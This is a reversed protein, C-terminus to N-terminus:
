LQFALSHLPESHAETKAWNIYGPNIENVEPLTMGQYKGFPLKWTNVDPIETVVKKTNAKKKFEPDMSFNMEVDKRSALYDALHLIIQYKDSPVPLVVGPNKPNTNWIGMHSEIAHAILEVEENPIGSDKLDRIVEAAFLPHEFKTYKNHEYEAQTGSKRSDHMMGAIKLLDRERPTFQVKIAEVEFMYTLFRCLSITHRVLGGDGLSTAPHYKGTSAAPVTWFYKPCTDLCIGAFAKIDENEFTDLIDNFITKDYM